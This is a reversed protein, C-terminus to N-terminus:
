RLGKRLIHRINTKKIIGKKTLYEDSIERTAQVTIRKSLTERINLFNWLIATIISKATLIDRKMIKILALASLLIIHTPLYKLLSKLSYNTIISRIRNRCYFYMGIYAWRNLKRCTGKGKHYVVAKPIFSTKYGRLWIRWCLDSDEFSLFYDPDFGGAEFFVERKVVLAAGMAGFMESIHDYQGRDVENEGINYDLGFCDIYHGVNELRKPDEMQLLKCQAAGIEPENEMVEAVERLWHKDVETDTNLFVLYDANSHKAGVNNGEAFGLNKTNQIIRLRPDSGFLKRVLNVSEDTSANDVFIVEFNPYDSDLVSRLCRRLFEKGNYNLIIVSISSWENKKVSM